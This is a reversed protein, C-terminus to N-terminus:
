PGSGLLSWVSASSVVATLAEECESTMVETAAERRVPPDGMAM